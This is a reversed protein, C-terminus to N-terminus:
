TSNDANFTAMQSVFNGTGNPNRAYGYDDKQEGFTVEDLIAGDSSVLYVSEGSKSLKFNTHLKGQTEDEDDWVILFSNAAISTNAPFQWKKLNTPNDSLYYGGLNVASSTLNYLEIWDDAQKNEDLNKTNSALVENIAM